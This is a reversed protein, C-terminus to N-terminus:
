MGGSQRGKFWGKVSQCWRVLYGFVECARMLLILPLFCLFLPLGKLTQIFSGEGGGRSYFFERASEKFWPMDCYSRNYVATTLLWVITIFECGSNLQRAHSDGSCHHAAYCLMEVWVGLVVQLLDPMRPELELLREALEAGRTFSPLVEGYRGVKIDHIMSQLDRRTRLNPEIPTAYLVPRAPSPLMHPREQLLFVMYNSLAKIAEVTHAPQAQQCFLILLETAFHWDLVSDDFDIDISWSTLDGFLGEHPKMACQGRYRTMTNEKRECAGVMRYIENLVLLKTGASIMVSSSHFMPVPEVPRHTKDVAYKNLLNHQGISGSWRRIREAAKVLQRVCVVTSYLCSWRRARLLACTWTSGMAGLLSVMELLLAGTILTYSVIVDVRNYNEKVNSSKFLFFAAITAVSSVARIFCGCWTHIVAAKTYLVDHMLSLQMEILEYMCGKDAFQKMAESQSPSPWFKYDVFQGMCIPLLYHAGQLVEESDGEIQGVSYVGAQEGREMESLLKPKEVNNLFM